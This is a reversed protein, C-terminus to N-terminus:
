LYRNLRNINNIVCLSNYQKMLASRYSFNISVQLHAFTIIAPTRM